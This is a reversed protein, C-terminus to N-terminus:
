DHRPIPPYIQQHPYARSEKGYTDTECIKVVLGKKSLVNEVLDKTSKSEMATTLADAVYQVLLDDMLDARDRDEGYPITQVYTTIAASHLVAFRGFEADALKCFIRDSCKDVIFYLCTARDRLPPFTALYREFADFIAGLECTLGVGLDSWTNGPITISTPIFPPM